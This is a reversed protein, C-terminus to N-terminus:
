GAVNEVLSDYYTIEHEGKKYGYVNFSLVDSRNMHNCNVDEIMACLSKRNYAENDTLIILDHVSSPIIVLDSNLDVAIKEFVEPYLLATAGLYKHRNTLVMIDPGSIDDEESLPLEDSLESLMKKMDKCVPELMRGTNSYAKAFLQKETLNAHEALDKDIVFSMVGYEDISIIRRYIVAMDLFTRHPLDKIYDENGQIGILQLVVNELLSNASFCPIDPKKNKLARTIMESTSTMVANYDGSEKYDEYMPEIYFTPAAYSEPPRSPAVSVGTLKANVKRIENVKLQYDSYDEGLYAIFEDLVKEKFQEYNM